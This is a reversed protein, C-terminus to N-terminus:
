TLGQGKLKLKGGVGWEQSVGKAIFMAKKAGGWCSLSDQLAGVWTWCLHIEVHLEDGNQLNMGLLWGWNGRTDAMVIKSAVPLAAPFFTGGVGVRIKVTSMVLGTHVAGANGFEMGEDHFHSEVMGIGKGALLGTKLDKQLLLRTGDMNSIEMGQAEKLSVEISRHFNKHTVLHEVPPSLGELISHYHGWSGHWGLRM